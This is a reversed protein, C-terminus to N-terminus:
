DVMDVGSKGNSWHDGNLEVDVTVKTVKGSEHLSDSRAEENYRLSALGNSRWTKEHEDLAEWKLNCKWNKHGKLFDIKEGLTM